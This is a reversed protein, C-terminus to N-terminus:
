HSAVLPQLLPAFCARQIASRCQLDLNDMYCVLLITSFLVICVGGEHSSGWGTQSLFAQGVVGHMHLAALTVIALVIAIAYRKPKGSEM